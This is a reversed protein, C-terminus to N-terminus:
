MWSLKVWAGVAFLRVQGCIMFSVRDILEREVAHFDKLAVVHTVLDVDETPRITPMAPDTISFSSWPAASLFWSIACRQEWANPLWRLCFSTPTTPNMWASALCNWRLRANAHAAAGSRMLCCWCNTFPRTVGRRKQCPRISRIFRWVACRGMRHPRVPPPENTPQVIKDKLPQAAYGTPMGRTVSGHTAPFAYRAGHEVFLRLAMKVVSPKGAKDKIALQAITAQELGAHIESATLGLEGALVAYTPAANPELALRLLM